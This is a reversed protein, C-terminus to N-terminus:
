GTKEKHVIEAKLWEIRHGQSWFHETIPVMGTNCKNPSELRFKQLM